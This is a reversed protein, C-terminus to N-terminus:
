FAVFNYYKFIFWDPHFYHSLETFRSNCFENRDRYCDKQILIKIINIINSSGWKFKIRTNSYEDQKIMQCIIERYLQLIKWEYEEALLEPGQVKKLRRPTFTKSCIWKPKRDEGDQIQTPKPMRWSRCIRWFDKYHCWM